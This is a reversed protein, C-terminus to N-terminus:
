FRFAGDGRLPSLRREASDCPREAIEAGVDWESREHHM